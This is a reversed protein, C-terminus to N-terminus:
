SIPFLYLPTGAPRDRLRAMARERTQPDDSGLDGVLRDVEQAYGHGGLAMGAAAGILIRRIM